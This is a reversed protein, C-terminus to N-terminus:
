MRPSGPTGRRLNGHPVQISAQILYESYAGVVEFHGQRFSYPGAMAKYSYRFVEPPANIYPMVPDYPPHSEFCLCKGICPCVSACHSVLNLVMVFLLLARMALPTQLRSDMEGQEACLVMSHGHGGLIMSDKPGHPLLSERLEAAHLYLPLNIRARQMPKSWILAHVRTGQSCCGGDPGITDSPTALARERLLHHLLSALLLPVPGALPPEPLPEAHEDHTM